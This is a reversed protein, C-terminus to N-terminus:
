AREVRGKAQPSNAWTLKVGLESLAEGFRTPPYQGTRHYIEKAPEDNRKHISHRDPYVLLPLGHTVAWRKFVVMVAYTTESEFFRADVQSTADDIIVMLTCRDYEPGFWRHDSGDLQVLEGFCARRE